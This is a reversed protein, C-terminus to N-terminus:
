SQPQSIEELLEAARAGIDGGLDEAQTLLPIAQEVDELNVYVRALKYLAEGYKRHGPFNQVLGAYAERAPENEGAVWHTEGVWYYADAAVPDEPYTAILTNFAELAGARDGNRLKALADTYHQAAVDNNIQPPPINATSNNAVPADGAATAQPVPNEVANSTLALIRSDLNAYDTSQRSQMRQLEYSLEEVLGRLASIETRLTQIDLYLAVTASQEQSQPDAAAAQAAPRAGLSRDEVPAQALSFQSFLLFLFVVGAYASTTQKVSM